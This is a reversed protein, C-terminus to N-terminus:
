IVCRVNKAHGQAVAFGCGVRTNRSFVNWSYSIIRTRWPSIITPYEYPALVEMHFISAAPGAVHQGEVDDLANQIIAGITSHWGIVRRARCTARWTMWRM